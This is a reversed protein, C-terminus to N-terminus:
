RRADNQESYYFYDPFMLEINTANVVLACDKIHTDCSQKFSTTYDIWWACGDQLCEDKMLPCIKNMM